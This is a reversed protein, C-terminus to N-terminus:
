LPDCSFTMHTYTFTHLYVCSHSHIHLHAPGNEFLDGYANYVKRMKPDGLTKACNQAFVLIDDDANSSLKRFFSKLGVTVEDQSAASNIGVFTYYNPTLVPLLSCVLSLLLIVVKIIRKLSKRNGSQKSCGFYFALAGLIFSVSTLELM